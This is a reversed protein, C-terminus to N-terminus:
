KCNRRTGGFMVDFRKFDPRGDFHDGKTILVEKKDEESHIVVANTSGLRIQYISGYVKPFIAYALSKNLFHICLTGETSKHISWIPVKQLKGHPAIVWNYAMAQTRSCYKGTKQWGGKKQEGLLSLRGAGCDFSGDLRSPFFDTNTWRFLSLNKQQNRVLM